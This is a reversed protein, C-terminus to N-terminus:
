KAKKISEPDVAELQEVAFWETQAKTGSFWSCLVQHPSKGALEALAKDDDSPVAKVTMVPGDSKLRVLDGAKFATM